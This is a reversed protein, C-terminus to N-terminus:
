DSPLLCRQPRPTTESEAPFSADNFLEFLPRKIRSRWRIAPWRSSWDHVPFGLRERALDIFLARYFGFRVRHPNLNRRFTRPKENTPHRIARLGFLEDLYCEYVGADRKGGRYGRRRLGAVGLFNSHRSLPINNKVFHPRRGRLWSWM